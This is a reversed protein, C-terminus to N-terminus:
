FIHRVSMVAAGDFGLGRLKDLMLGHLKFIDLIQKEYDEAKQGHMEFFGIFSEELSFGKVSGDEDKLIKIYRLIVSLQDVKSRDITSDVILSFFPASRVDDLIDEVIHSALAGIVENQFEPSLYSFYM